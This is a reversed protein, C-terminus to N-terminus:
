EESRYIKTPSEKFAKSNVSTGSPIYIQQLSLCMRFASSGIEKLTSPLKVETLSSCGYFAHGGIRTVGEPIEIEILSKDNEFTNGKIETIGSSLKIYELGYCNRFASGRIETITDPLNVAKTYFLNEFVNGRIGVVKKGNYTSPIDVIQNDIFSFTCYRIVYDDDQKEYIIHPKMFICLVIAIVFLYIKSNSKNSKQTRNEVTSAIIYEMNDDPCAKIKKKLINLTNIGNIFFKFIIIFVVELLLAIYNHYFAVYVIIALTIIFLITRLINRKKYVEDIVVKEDLNLKNIVDMIYKELIDNESEFGHLNGSYNNGKNKKSYFSFLCFIIYIFIIIQM